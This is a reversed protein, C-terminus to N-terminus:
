LYAVKVSLICDFLFYCDTINEVSGFQLHKKYLSWLLINGALHDNTGVKNGIVLAIFGKTIRKNGINGSHGTSNKM